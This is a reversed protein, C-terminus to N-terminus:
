HKIVQFIIGAKKLAKQTRQGLDESKSTCFVILHLLSLIQSFDEMQWEGDGLSCKDFLIIIFLFIYHFFSIRNMSINKFNILFLINLFKM